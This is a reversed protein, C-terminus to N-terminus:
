AGLAPRGIGREAELSMRLIAPEDFLADLLKGTKERGIPDFLASFPMGRVECGFLETIQSGVLRFRALGPAIREIMFVKELAGAIGRPDIADRLPVAGDQRLAEWYAYVESPAMDQSRGTGDKGLIGIGRAATVRKEDMECVEVFWKRPCITAKPPRQYARGLTVNRPWKVLGWPQLSM